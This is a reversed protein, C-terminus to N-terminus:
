YQEGTFTATTKAKSPQTETPLDCQAKYPSPHMTLEPQTPKLLPLTSDIEILKQDSNQFKEPMNLNATIMMNLKAIFAERDKHKLLQDGHFKFTKKQICHQLYTSWCKGKSGYRQIM